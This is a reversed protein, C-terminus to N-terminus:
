RGFRKAEPNMMLKSDVINEELNQLQRLVTRFANRSTWAETAFQQSPQDDVTISRLTKLQATTIYGRDEYKAIFELGKKAYYKWCEEYEGKDYLETAHKLTDEVFSIADLISVDGEPLEMQDAIVGDIANVFGNFAEFDSQIIKRGNIKKLEGDRTLYIPAGHITRLKQFLLSNETVHAGTIVHRALLAYYKERLEMKPKKVIKSYISKAWADDTPAFVTFTSSATPLDLGTLKILSVTTKFKPDSELIELVSLESPPIVSDIVHIIGNATPIDTESINAGDITLKGNNSSFNLSQGYLSKPTNGARGLSIYGPIKGRAFLGNSIHHKIIDELREDNEPKFLSELMRKPLKNFAEDTPAFTTYKFHTNQFSKGQRSATIAKTFIKFRGDKQLAQFLDDTNPSLVEDILYIVGNSCVIREGILGAAGIQKDTYNINVLQGNFMELLTYNELDIPALSGYRVHFKFVEELRDDNRPNFLTQLAEDPLKNFAKDTPAFVTYSRSVQETLSSALDSKELIKLFTTLDSRERAVSGITNAEAPNAAKLQSVVLILPFIYKLM